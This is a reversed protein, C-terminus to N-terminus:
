ESSFPWSLPGSWPDRISARQRQRSAQLYAAIETPLRRRRSWELGEALGTGGLLDGPDKKVAWHAQRERTRDLWEQFRHDQEVWERLAGWDRILAEHILEAM